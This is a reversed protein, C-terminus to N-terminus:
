CTATRPIVPHKKKRRGFNWGETGKAQDLASGPFLDLAVSSQKTGSNGRREKHRSFSVFLFPNNLAVSHSMISAPGFFVKNSIVCVRIKTM